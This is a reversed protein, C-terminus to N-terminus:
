WQLITLADINDFHSDRTAIPLNHELALAAIWLDNEPIMRGNRRLEAKIRGYVQTTELDPYVVQSSAVFTDVRALQAEANAAYHAGYCLEGVVIWPTYVSDAAELMVVGEPTQRIAANAANTDILLSGNM